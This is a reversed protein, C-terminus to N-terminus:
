RAVSGSCCGCFFLSTCLNNFLNM